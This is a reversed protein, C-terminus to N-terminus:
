RKTYTRVQENEYVEDAYANMFLEEPTIKGTESDTCEYTGIDAM